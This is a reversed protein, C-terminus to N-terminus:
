RADILRVLQACLSQPVGAVGRPILREGVMAQCILVHLALGEPPYKVDSDFKLDRQEHTM